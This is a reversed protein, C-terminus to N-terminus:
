WNGFVEEIIEKQKKKYKELYIANWVDDQLKDQDQVFVGIM